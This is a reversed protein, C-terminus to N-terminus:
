YDSEEIEEVKFTADKLLEATSDSVYDFAAEDVSKGPALKDTYVTDSHIEKDKKDYATIKISFSLYRDSKNTITVPLETDYWHIYTGQQEIKYTGFKVEVDEALRDALIQKCDGIHDLAEKLSDAVRRYQESLDRTKGAGIADVADEGTYYKIDEVAKFDDGSVGYKETCKNRMEVSFSDSTSYYGPLGSDRYVNSFSSSYDQVANGVDKVNRDYKEIAEATLNAQIILFTVLAGIGLVVVGIIIWFWAKKYFTVPKSNGLVSNDAAPASGQAPVGANPATKQQKNQDLVSTGEM